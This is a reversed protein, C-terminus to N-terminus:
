VRWFFSVKDACGYDYWILKLFIDIIKFLAFEYCYSIEWFEVMKYWQKCKTWVQGCKNVSWFLRIFLTFLFKMTIFYLILKWRWLFAHTVWFIFRDVDGTCWPLCFSNLNGRLGTGQVYFYGGYGTYWPVLYGFRICWPSWM